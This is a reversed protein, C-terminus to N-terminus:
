IQGATLLAFCAPQLGFASRLTEALGKAVPEHQCWWHNGGWQQLFAAANAYWLAYTDSGGDGTRLLNLRDVLANKESHSVDAM